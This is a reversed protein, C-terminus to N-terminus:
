RRLWWLWVNITGGYGVAVFRGGGHAVGYLGTLLGSYCVNWNTGDTSDVITDGYSSVAVFRGEGYAVAVM